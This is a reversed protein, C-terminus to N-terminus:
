SIYLRSTAIVFITAALLFIMHKIFKWKTLENRLYKKIVNWFSFYVALIIAGFSLHNIPLFTLAWTLELVVLGMLFSYFNFTKNRYYDLHLELEQSKLFNIKTLYYTALYISMFIFLMMQWTDIGIITYIGYIGGTLLFITFMVISQNLNFGSDIFKIKEEKAESEEPKRSFFRHIGFLTIVFLVSVFIIYYQQIYNQGIPLLFSVSGVSFITTLIVTLPQRTIWLASLTAVLLLTVVANISFGSSKFFIDLVAFFFIGPIIFKISKLIKDRLKIIKTKM